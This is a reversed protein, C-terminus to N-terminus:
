EEGYAKSSEWVIMTMKRIAGWRYGGVAGVSKIVRHCPILFAVPNSGIANGIARSVKLYHISHAITGYSSLEAFPISLLAKWIKIQFNTGKLHLKIKNLDNFDNNFFHIAKQHHINEGEKWKANLWLQKLEKYAEDRNDYFFLNCIGKDTSAILYYEFQCEQFNYYITLNEGKNKYEGPTMGEINTFLNHLQSTTSLGTEFGIDWLTANKNKLLKKAHNISLYQIFKKPSVGAWNKFLQQFHYSSM